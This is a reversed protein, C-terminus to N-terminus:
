KVEKIGTFIFKSQKPDYTLYHKGRKVVFCVNNNQNVGYLLTYGEDLYGKLGEIERFQIGNSM